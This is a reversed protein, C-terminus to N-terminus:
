EWSCDRPENPQYFPYFVVLSTILLRLNLPMLFILLLWELAIYEDRPKCNDRVTITYFLRQALRYELINNLIINKAAAKSGEKARDLSIRILVGNPGNCIRSFVM